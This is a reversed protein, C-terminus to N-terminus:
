QEPTNILEILREIITEPSATEALLTEMWVTLFGIYYGDSYKYRFVELLARIEQETRKM